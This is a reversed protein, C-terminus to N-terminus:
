EIKAKPKFEEYKFYSKSFHLQSIMREIFTRQLENIAINVRRDMKIRIFHVADTPPDQHDIRYKVIIDCPQIVYYKESEKVRNM